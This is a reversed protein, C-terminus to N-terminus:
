RFKISGLGRLTVTLMFGFDDKKDEYIWSKNYLELYVGWCQHHYDVGVGLYNSGIKNSDSDETDDGTSVYYRSYFFLDLEDYVVIKLEGNIYEYKRLRFREEDRKYVFENISNYSVSLYDGRLDKLTIDGAILSFDDVFHNYKAIFGFEVYESPNSRIEFYSTIYSGSVNYPVSDSDKEFDIDVGLEVSLLNRTPVDGTSPEVNGVFSNLLAVSLISRGWVRDLNDLRPYKKQDLYPAYTYNVVPSITYEITDFSEFNSDLTWSHETSVKLGTIFTYRELNSSYHIDSTYKNNNNPWWWTFIGDIWPEVEFSGVNLPMNLGPRVDIRLGSVGEKRYFNTLRSDMSVVLPTNPIEYPKIIFSAEPLIQITRSDSADDMDDRYIFNIAFEAWDLEKTFSVKSTLFRPETKPLNDYFSELDEYYHDDSVLNIDWKTYIDWPLEQQHEFSVSWRFDDEILDQIFSFNAQGKLDERLFYRYELGVKTGRETMIDALVTADMSKNIAWFYSILFKAGDDKSYGVKPILFGSQRKRKVPFIAFPWYFVPVEKIQFVGGWVKAYGGIDMDGEKALITWAPSSGDCTTLTGRKFHYKKDGLKELEKGSIYFNKEAYFIMGNYIIGTQTDMKIKLLDGKVMDEGDYLSVNGEAEAMKTEGNFIVKDAKLLANGRTIEVNGEATYISNERDYTLMDASILIPITKDGFDKGELQALCTTSISMLLLVIFALLYKKELM